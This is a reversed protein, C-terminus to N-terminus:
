YVDRPKYDRDERFGQLVEALILDGIGVLESELLGDWCVMWAFQKRHIEVM